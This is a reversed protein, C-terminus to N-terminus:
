PTVQDDIRQEITRKELSRKLPLEAIKKGGRPDPALYVLRAPSSELAWCSQSIGKSTMKETIVQMAQDKTM